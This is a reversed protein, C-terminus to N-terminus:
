LSNPNPKHCLLHSSQATLAANSADDLLLALFGASLYIPLGFEGDRLSTCSSRPVISIYIYVCMYLM